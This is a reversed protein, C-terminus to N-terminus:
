LLKLNIAFCSSPVSIEPISGAGVCAYSGGDDIDGLMITRKNYETLRCHDMMIVRLEYNVNPNM